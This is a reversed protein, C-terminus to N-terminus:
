QNSNFCIDLKKEFSEISFESSVTKRAAQSMSELLTRNEILSIIATAFARSDSPMVLLGNQGDSVAEELIGVSTAVVTRGSAWWEILARSTAESGTSPIVGFLCDGLFGPVKDYSIRGMYKVYGKFDKRINDWRYNVEDGAIYLEAAPFSRWVINMAECLVDIGKVRDLRGLFGIKVKAPLMSVKFKETDVGLYVTQVKQSDVGLTLIEDKIKNNGTIIRDCKSYLFRNLLNKKIGYSETRFRVIKCIDPKRIFFSTLLDSGTFALIREPNIQPTGRFGARLGKLVETKQSCPLTKNIRKF